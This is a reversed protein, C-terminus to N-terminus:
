FPYRNVICYKISDGMLIEFKDDSFLPIKAYEIKAYKKNCYSIKTMSLHALKCHLYNAAVVVIFKIRFCHGKKQNKDLFINGNNRTFNLFM